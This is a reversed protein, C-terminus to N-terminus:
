ARGVASFRPVEKMEYGIVQRTQPDRIAKGRRFCGTIRATRDFDEQSRIAELVVRGDAERVLRQAGELYARRGFGFGTSEGLLLAIVESNGNM